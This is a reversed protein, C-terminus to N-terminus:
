TSKIDYYVSPSCQSADCKRFRSIDPLATLDVEVFDIGMFICRVNGM